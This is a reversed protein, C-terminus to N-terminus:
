LMEFKKTNFFCAWRKPRPGLESDLAGFKNKVMTGFSTINDGWLDPSKGTCLWLYAYAFEATENKM